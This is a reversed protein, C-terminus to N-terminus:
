AAPQKQDWPLDDLSDDLVEETTPKPVDGMVALTYDSLTV